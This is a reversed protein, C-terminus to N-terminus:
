FEGPVALHFITKILEESPPANSLEEFLKNDMEPQLFPDSIVNGSDDGGREECEYEDNYFEQNNIIPSQPEEKPTFYAKTEKDFTSYLYAPVPVKNRNKIKRGKKGRGLRRSSRSPSKAHTFQALEGVLLPREM